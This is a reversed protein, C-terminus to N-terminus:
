EFMFYYFRKIQKILQERKKYCFTHHSNEEKKRMRQTKLRTLSKKRKGDQQKLRQCHKQKERETNENWVQDTNKYKVTFTFFFQILKLGCALFCFSICITAVCSWHGKCLHSLPYYFPELSMQWCFKWNMEEVVGKRRREWERRGGLDNDAIQFSLYFYKNPLRINFYKLFLFYYCGSAPQSVPQSSSHISSQWMFLIIDLLNKQCVISWESSPYIYYIFHTFEFQKDCFVHTFRATIGNSVTVRLVILLQFKSSMNLFYISGVYYVKVM